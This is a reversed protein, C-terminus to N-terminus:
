ITRLSRVPITSRSIELIISELTGADAPLNLTFAVVGNTRFTGGKSTAWAQSLAIDEYSTADEILVTPILHASSNNEKQIQDAFSYALYSDVGTIDSPYSITYFKDKAPTGEFTGALSGKGDKLTVIADGIRIGDDDCWKYISLPGESPLTVKIGTDGAPGPGDPDKEGCSVALAAVALM